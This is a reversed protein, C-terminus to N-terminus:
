PGHTSTSAGPVPMTEVIALVSVACLAHDPVLMAVGCTAPASACSRAMALWRVAESAAEISVHRAVGFAIEPNGSPEAVGM